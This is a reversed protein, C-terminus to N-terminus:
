WEVPISGLIYRTGTNDFTMIVVVEERDIKLVKEERYCRLLFPTDNLGFAKCQLEISAFTM